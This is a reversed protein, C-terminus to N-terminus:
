KVPSTVSSDADTRLTILLHDHEVSVVFTRNDNELEYIKEEYIRYKQKNEDQGIRYNRGLEDTQWFGRTSSKSNKESEVLMVRHKVEESKKGCLSCFKAKLHKSTTNPQFEACNKSKFLLKGYCERLLTSSGPRNQVLGDRTVYLTVLNSQPTTTGSMLMHTGGINIIEREGKMMERDIDQIRSEYVQFGDEICRTCFKYNFRKRAKDSTNVSLHEGTDEPAINRALCGRGEQVAEVEQVADILAPLANLKQRKQAHIALMDLGSGSRFLRELAYEASWMVM